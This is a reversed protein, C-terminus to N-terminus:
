GHNNEYHLNWSLWYISKRINNFKTFVSPESEPVILINERSDIVNSSSGVSYKHYNSPVNGNVIQGGSCYCMTSDYGLKRLTGCLQHLAEPGGSVYNLPSVIYIKM